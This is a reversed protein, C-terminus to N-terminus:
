RAAARHHRRRPDEPPPRSCGIHLTPDGSFLTPDRSILTPDRNPFSSYSCRGRRLRAQRTGRDRHHLSDGAAPGAPPRDGGRGGRSGPDALGGAGPQPIAGQEDRLQAERRARRLRLDSRGPVAGAVADPLRPRRDRRLTRTAAREPDVHIWQHDGTADAFADIREQTIELWDSHGLEEGCPRPSTTPAAFSRAGGDADPGRDAPSTSCRAPSSGAGSARRLVVRGARHRGAQRGARGPDDAAAAAKFEEFGVGMREATAATM